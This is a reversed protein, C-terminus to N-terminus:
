PRTKWSLKGSDCSATSGGDTEVEGSFRFTGFSKNRDIQGKVKFVTSGNDDKAKFAGSASVPITGSLKAVNITGAEGGSCRLEFDRVVFKTVSSADGKTSVKFKVTSGPVGSLQGVHTTRVAHALAPLALAAVAVGIMM